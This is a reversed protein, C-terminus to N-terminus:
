LIAACSTASMSQKAAIQREPRRRAVLWSLVKWVSMPKRYSAYKALHAVSLRLGNGIGGYWRRRALWLMKSLAQLPVLPWLIPPYRLFGMLFINAISYSTILANPTGERPNIHCVRLLATQVMVGGMAYLQLSLDTEEMSYSIPIPVFGTTKLFWSKRFVCGCGSFMVVRWFLADPNQEQSKPLHTMVEASYIASDPLMEAVELVKAFYDRHTPFSDDDFNAVLEHHAAAILRNRSGGPGLLEDSKLVKVQPFKRALAAVIEENAGDVHVLIEAPPPDCRIVVDLTNLLPALRCHAPIIATVPVEVHEKPPVHASGLQASDRWM